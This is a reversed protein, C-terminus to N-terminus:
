RCTRCKRIRTSCSCRSRPQPSAPGGPLRRSPRVPPRPATSKRGLDAIESDVDSRFESLSAILVNVAERETEAVGRIAVTTMEHSILNGSRNFLEALLETRTAPDTTLSFIANMRTVMRAYGAVEAAKTLPGFDASGYKKAWWGALRRVAFKGAPGLGATTDALAKNLSDNLLESARKAKLNQNLYATEMCRNILSGFENVACDGDSSSKVCAPPVNVNVKTCLWGRVWQSVPVSTNGRYCQLYREHLADLYASYAKRFDECQHESVPNVPLTPATQAHLNGASGLYIWAAAFLGSAARKM